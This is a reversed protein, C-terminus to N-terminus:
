EQKLLTQLCTCSRFSMQVISSVVVSKFSSSLVQGCLGKNLPYRGFSDGTKEAFSTTLKPLYGESETHKKADDDDRCAASFQNNIQKRRIEEEKEERELVTQPQTQHNQRNKASLLKTFTAPAQNM